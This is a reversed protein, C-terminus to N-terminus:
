KSAGSGDIIDGAKETDGKKTNKRYERLSIYARRFLVFSAGFAILLSTIFDRAAYKEPEFTAGWDSAIYIVFAIFFMVAFASIFDRIVRGITVGEKEVVPFPKFNNARSRLYLKTYFYFLWIIPLFFIAEILRSGPFFEAIFMSIFGAIAFLSVVIVFMFVNSTALREEDNSNM